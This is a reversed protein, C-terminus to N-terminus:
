LKGKTRARYFADRFMRQMPGIQLTVGDKDMVIPEYGGPRMVVTGGEEVREIAARTSRLATDPTLGDNADKGHEGDVYIM